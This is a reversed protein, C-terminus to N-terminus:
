RTTYTAVNSYGSEQGQANYDTVVFRYTTRRSLGSVTATTVNRVDTVNPYSGTRTGYRIKYGTVPTNIPPDWALTVQQTGAARSWSPVLLSALCGVTFFLTRRRTVTM